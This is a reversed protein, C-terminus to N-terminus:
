DRKLAVMPDVAAASRAPLLSAALSVGLVLLVALAFALPDRADIGYIVTDLARAAWGAVLLGLGVGAATVGGAGRLVLGYLDRHQAGLAKRVGLERTHTTVVFSLVGYLGVTALTLATLGFFNLMWMLVRQKALSNALRQQMSVLDYVPLDPDIAHVTRTVAAALATPDPAEGARPNGGDLAARRVVGFMARSGRAAHPSFVAPRTDADVGYHMVTDIVGVITTRDTFDNGIWKGIAEEVPWFREAFDRNVIAVSPEPGDATTFDRGAILEAGLADFYGPTVAMVDAVIRADPNDENFGEVVFDTWALGRTLPLMSTGGAASVGPLGALRDFLEQYFRVRAAADNYREGVPSVRFSVVGAPRFGPDVTSLERFTRVLLGAGIVLMLSLAVQAVVLVRSGGRAWASGGRTATAGEPLVGAPLARSTRVAPGLGFLLSSALCLLAAFGLVGPDIAVERLRPLDEPAAVHLARVAAAAIALGGLGGLLSLVVSELMAQVVMRARPAGLSARISLERRRTAARTLLLNAVNACAILLLVGTAGLLVVLYTRAGGVMQDLLPVVAIYFESGVTLGAGLGGPDAAFARAVETLETELRAPTADAALKGIVNFNESGRRTTQPDELPFSLLLDFVPVTLLTAMMDGDLVLSPLVGVVELRRGDLTITSGIVGPDGGFHQQFIREGLIVRSPANPVDDEPGFRRGATAAIGLVDFFSSSVRLAGLRVPDLDDGTLTVEQGFTVAVHEFSPVAARLDFYQAASFWDETVGVGPARQWLMVLRQQDPFPLPRLLVGHVVSFITTTAGIALALTVIIVTSYGPARLLGRAAYKLEQM